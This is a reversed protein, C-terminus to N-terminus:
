VQSVKILNGLYYNDTEFNLIDDIMQEIEKDEWAFSRQYLPIIYKDTSFVNRGGNAITLTNINSDTM